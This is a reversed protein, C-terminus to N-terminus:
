DEDFDYDFDCGNLLEAVDVELMKAIKLLTSFKLDFLGNEVRSWTATTLFGRSLVFENLSKSKEIRLDKVRKGLIKLNKREDQQM